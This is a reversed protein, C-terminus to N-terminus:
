MLKKSVQRYHKFYEEFLESQLPADESKSAGAGLIIIQKISRM